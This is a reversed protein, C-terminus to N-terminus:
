AHGVEPFNDLGSALALSDAGVELRKAREIKRQLSAANSNNFGSQARTKIYRRELEERPLLDFNGAEREVDLGDSSYHFDLAHSMQGDRGALNEMASLLELLKVTSITGELELRNRSYTGGMALTVSSIGDESIFAALEMDGDGYYVTLGGGNIVRRRPVFTVELTAMVPPFDAKPDIDGHTEWDVAYAKLRSLGNRPDFRIHRLSLM